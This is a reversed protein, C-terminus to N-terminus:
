VRRAVEVRVAEDCAPEIKVEIPLFTKLVEINTLAHQSLPFTGFAGGGALAMPLLLQDALHEGVPVDTDLYRRVDKALRGAVVEAKVGLEGFGVFVETLNASEVEVILVNGPGHSKVEETRLDALDLSLERKLVKLEREAVHRPLNAIIATARCGLVKGRALLGLGSLKRPEITVRMKGGGAPYFGHRDLKARISPGMRNVLPLFAKAMFEFPPALPNHTGGELVLASPKAATILAPLITQLVLAASGATGVAFAYEGPAVGHPRFVLESSDLEAGQVEAQGIMAAAQVAALHQRQLGPRKRNARIKEIRFEQGTVLSLGLATRLIQGGGEGFSGDLTLM